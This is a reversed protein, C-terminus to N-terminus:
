RIFNLKTYNMKMKKKFMRSSLKPLQNNKDNNPNKIEDIYSVLTNLNLLTLMGANAEKTITDIMRLADIITYKLGFFTLMKDILSPYKNITNSLDDNLFLEGVNLQMSLLELELEGIKKSPILFVKKFKSLIVEDSPSPNNFTEFFKFRTDLSLNKDICYISQKFETDDIVEYDRYFTWYLIENFNKSRQTTTSEFLSERIEKNESYELKEICYLFREIGDGIESSLKSESLITLDNIIKDSAVKSSNLRSLIYNLPNWGFLDFDPVSALMLMINTLTGNIDKCINLLNIIQDETIEISNNEISESTIQYQNNNQNIKFFTNLPVDSMKDLKNRKSYNDSFRKIFKNTCDSCSQYIYSDNLHTNFWFNGIIYANIFGNKKMYDQITSLEDNYLELKEDDSYNTSQNVDSLLNMNNKYNVEEDQEQLSKQGRGGCGNLSFLPELLYTMLFNWIDVLM